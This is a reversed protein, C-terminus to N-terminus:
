NWSFHETMVLSRAFVVLCDVGPCRIDTDAAMQRGVSQRNGTWDHLWHYDIALGCTRRTCLQALAPWLDMVDSGTAASLEVSVYRFSFQTGTEFFIASRSDVVVDASRENWQAGAAFRERWLHDVGLVVAGREEVGPWWSNPSRHGGAGTSRDAASGPAIVRAHDLGAGLHRDASVSNSDHGALCSRACQHARATEVARHRQATADRHNDATSSGAAHQGGVFAFSNGTFRRCIGRGSPCLGLGGSRDRDSSNTSRLIDSPLCPTQPPSSQCAELPLATESGHISCETSRM